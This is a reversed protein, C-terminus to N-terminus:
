LQLLKLYHLKDHLGNIFVHALQNKKTTKKKCVNENFDASNL